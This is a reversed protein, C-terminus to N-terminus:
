YIVYKGDKYYYNMQNTLSMAKLVEDITSGAIEFSGYFRKQKISDVVEIEVDYTRVLRKAIDELLIEDFFLENNTWLISKKSNFKSKRMIGTSKNLIVKENPYLYLASMSKIVNNLEVKGELLSVTVEEDNSYNCINFKTGIVRLGLEKTNVIFPLSENHTVQFYAEGDLNLRRSDIGFGQSYTIKSGANLWVLTGDPLNLKTRSGLPAEIIIDAFDQKLTQKGEWYAMIPLIFLLIISAVKFFMSRSFYYIHEKQQKVDAVRHQFREFAKKADFSLEGDVAGSSFWVEMKERIYKRNEESEAAWDKLQQFSSKDLTGSFYSIILTDIDRNNVQM